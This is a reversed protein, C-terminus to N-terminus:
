IRFCGQIRITGDLVHFLAPVHSCLSSSRIGSSACPSFLSIILIKFGPVNFSALQSLHPSTNLQSSDSSTFSSFISFCKAVFIGDPNPYLRFYMIQGCHLFLIMRLEFLYPSYQHKFLYKIEVYSIFSFVEFCNRQEYHCKVPLFKLFVTFSLQVSYEICGSM